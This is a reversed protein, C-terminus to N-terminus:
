KIIAILVANVEIGNKIINQYSFLPYKGERLLASKRNMLKKSTRQNEAKGDM